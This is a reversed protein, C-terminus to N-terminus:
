GRPGLRRSKLFVGHVSHAVDDFNVFVEAVAATLANQVTGFPRYLDDVALGLDNGVVKAVAQSGAKGAAGGASQFNDLARGVGIVFLGHFLVQGRHPFGVPRVVSMPMSVVARVPVFMSVAVFVRLAVPTLMPVVVPVTLRMLMSM